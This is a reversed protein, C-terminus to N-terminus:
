PRLLSALPHLGDQHWALPPRQMAGPRCIRPGEVPSAANCALTSIIPAVRALAGADAPLIWLMRPGPSVRFAPDPLTMLMSTETAFREGGLMLVFPSARQRASRHSSM